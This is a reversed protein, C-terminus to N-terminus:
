GEDISWERSLIFGRAYLRAFIGCSTVAHAHYGDVHGAHLRARIETVIRSDLVDALRDASEAIRSALDEPIAEVPLRLTQYVIPACPLWPVGAAHAARRVDLDRIKAHRPYRAGVSAFVFERLRTKVQEDTASPCMPYLKARAACLVQPDTILM